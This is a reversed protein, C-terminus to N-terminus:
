LITEGWHSQQISNLRRGKKKKQWHPCCHTCAFHLSGASLVEPEAPHLWCQIGYWFACCGRFCRPGSWWPLTVASFLLARTNVACVQLFTQTHCFCDRQLLQSTSVVSVGSVALIRDLNCATCGRPLMLKQVPMRTACTLIVKQQLFIKSQNQSALFYSGICLIIEKLNTQTQKQM